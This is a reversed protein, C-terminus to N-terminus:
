SAKNIENQLNEKQKRNLQYNSIKNDPSLKLKHIVKSIYRIQKEYRRCYVCMLLHMKLQIWKIFGLSQHENKSILYTAEDCSIMMPMKDKILKNHHNHTM